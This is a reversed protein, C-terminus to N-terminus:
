QRRKRQSSRPLPSTAMSILEGVTLVAPMPTGFQPAGQKWPPTKRAEASQTVAATLVLATLVSATVKSLTKTTM